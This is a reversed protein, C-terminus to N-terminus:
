EIKREKKKAVPGDATGADKEVNRKPRKAPPPEISEGPEAQVIASKKKQRNWLWLVLPIIIGPAIWSLHSSVAAGILSLQQGYTVEVDIFEQFTKIELPKEGDAYNVLANLVLHLRQRGPKTPTVDWKWETVDKQSVLKRQTGNLITFNEGYLTAEMYEGVRLSVAKREGEGKVREILAEGHVSPSLVLNISTPTELLIRDPKNFAMSGEFLKDRIDDISPTPSKSPVTTAPSPEISPRPSLRPTRPPSNQNGYSPPSGTSLLWSGILFALPIIALIGISLLIIALTSKSTVKRNLHQKLDPKSVTEIEALEFGDAVCHLAEDPYNALCHPCHKM